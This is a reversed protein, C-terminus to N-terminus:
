LEHYFPPVYIGGHFKSTRKMAEKFAKNKSVVFPM